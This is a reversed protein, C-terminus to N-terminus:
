LLVSQVSETNLSYVHLHMEYCPQISLMSLNVNATISIPKGSQPPDPNIVVSIIKAPDSAKGVPFITCTFALLKNFHLLSLAHM